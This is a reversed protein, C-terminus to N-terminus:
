TRVVELGIAEAARCLLGDGAVFLVEGAAAKAFRLGQWTCGTTAGCRMRKALRGAERVLRDSVELLELRDYIAELRDVAMPLAARGEADVVRTRVVRECSQWHRRAQESGPEAVILPVISSTDFYAIV